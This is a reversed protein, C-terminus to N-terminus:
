FYCRWKCVDIVRGMFPSGSFTTPTWLSALYCALLLRISLSHQVSVAHCLLPLPFSTRGYRIHPTPRIEMSMWWCKGTYTKVFHNRCQKMQLFWKENHSILKTSQIRSCCVQNLWFLGCILSIQEHAWSLTGRFVLYCMTVPQDKGAVKWGVWVIWRYLACICERFIVTLHCKYCSLVCKVGGRSYTYTCTHTHM